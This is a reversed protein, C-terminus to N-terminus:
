ASIAQQYRRYNVKALHLYIREDDENDARSAMGLMELWLEWYYEKSKSM